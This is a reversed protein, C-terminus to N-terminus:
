RLLRRSLLDQLNCRGDLVCYIYVAEGAVSYIIRYPKFHLQRFRREGLEELEPVIGGRRPNHELSAYSEELRELVYLAAQPSDNAAIYQWIAAIDEEASRTLEVTHIM